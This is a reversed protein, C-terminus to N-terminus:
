FPNMIFSLLYKPCEPFELPKLISTGPVPSLSWIYKKSHWLAFALLSLSSPMLCPEQACKQRQPWEESPKAGLTLWQSRQRCGWGSGTISMIGLHWLESALPPPELNMWIGLGITPVLIFTNGAQPQCGEGPGPQPKGPWTSKSSRGGRVESAQM